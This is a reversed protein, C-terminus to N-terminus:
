ARQTGMLEVFARFLSADIEDGMEAKMLKLSPFSDMGRQHTRNTTLADFIDAICCIRAHLSVANGSLGDPYGHGTLKEHHHRAVDHVIPSTEGRKVLLELSYLPHRRMEAWQDDTLKGKCLIITEDLKGKGIDHLLAGRSLDHIEEEPLRLRQALFVSFIFVNVSHTYIFYAESSHNVLLSFALPEALMYSVMKRLMAATQKLAGSSEEHEIADRVLGVAADYLVACKEEPPSKPDRLAQFLHEELYLRYSERELPKVLLADIKTRQLGTRDDKTIVAGRKRYLMPPRGSRAPLYLDFTIPKDMMLSYLPVVIFDRRASWSSAESADRLLM